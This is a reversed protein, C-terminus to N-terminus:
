QSSWRTTADVTPSITSAAPRAPIVGGAVSTESTSRMSVSEWIPNIKRIDEYGFGLRQIVGPRFSEMVVDAKAALKKVVAIGDASKLDLAISRKGRNTSHFYAAGLHGGDKSEVFPPGWARTDDGAKSREVKIVDAGLDALLQAAFPGALDRSLDLVRIGELPLEEAAVTM